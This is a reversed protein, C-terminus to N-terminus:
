SRGGGLGWLLLLFVATIGIAKGTDAQPSKPIRHQVDNAFSECNYNLLNYVRGKKNMAYNVLDNRSYNLKPVFQEIRTIGLFDSFFESATIVRVGYGQKNEIFLHSENHFGLYIAHHQIWRISSKPGVIRDGVRLQTLINNYNKM